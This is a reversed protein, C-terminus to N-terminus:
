NENEVACLVLSLKLVKEKNKKKLCLLGKSPSLFDIYESEIWSILRHFVRQPACWYQLCGADKRRRKRRM